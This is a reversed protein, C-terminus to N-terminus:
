DALIVTYTSYDGKDSPPAINGGLQVEGVTYDQKYLRYSHNTLGTKWEYGTDEFSMLWSPKRLYRTDRAIYVTVDKNVTFSM